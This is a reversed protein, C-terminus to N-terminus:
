SRPLHRLQPEDPFAGARVAPHAELREVVVHFTVAPGPLAQLAVDLFLPQGMVLHFGAGALGVGVVQLLVDQRHEPRHPHVLDL